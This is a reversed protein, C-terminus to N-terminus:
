IEWGRRRLFLFIAIVIGVMASMMLGIAAAYGAHYNLFAQKYVLVALVESAGGPGGQTLIWVFDFTLFSWITTMLIMFVLTPRIGPVTVDRFEQWRSAGDLRAAEYLDPAINQMAALFLVMLFGWWAWNAVFAIAPLVTQGNGLWARNFGAIGWTALQAGLGQRPNLLAAWISAVVVTPLVFPIFLTLRYVLAGRRVTSLLSAALLALAMPLTLFIVLWVLNNVFAHKFSPDAFFLRRFNELGIFTAAGVGNWDTLSYYVSSIAPGFVVVANILLVPLLFLWPLVARRYISRWSRASWLWAGARQPATVARQGSIM